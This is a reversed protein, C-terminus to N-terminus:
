SIPVLGAAFAIRLAESLSHVGLKDMMNARYIEVTRPSIDLEYAIVKNSRGAILGGLVDKERQSLRGITAQAKAVHATAAGDQELREFAVAIAGALSESDFPKELFDVAGAKMAEVALAVNGVGTLIITVFRGRAAGISRLVDFGDIGPMHYDLLVLGPDLSEAEAIFAEGSRFGRILLDPTISLLSHLSGRVSDDDDVIYICRTM